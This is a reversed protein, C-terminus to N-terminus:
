LSTRDFKNLRLSFYEGSYSQLCMILKPETTASERDNGCLFLEIILKHKNM